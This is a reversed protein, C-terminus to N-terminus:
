GHSYSALILKLIICVSILCFKLKVLLAFLLISLSKNVYITLLLFDVCLRYLLYARTVGDSEAQCDCVQISENWLDRPQSWGEVGCWSHAWQGVISISCFKHKEFVTRLLEVSIQIPKTFNFIWCGFPVLRLVVFLM